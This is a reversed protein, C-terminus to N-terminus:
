RRRTLVDLKGELEDIKRQSYHFYDLDYSHKAQSNKWIALLKLLKMIEKAIGEMTETIGGSGVM